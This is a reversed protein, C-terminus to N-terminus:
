QTHRATSAIMKFTEGKAPRPEPLDSTNGILIQSKTRGMFHEGAIGAMTLEVEHGAETTALYHDNWSFQQREFFDIANRLAEVRSSDSIENFLRRMMKPDDRQHAEISAQIM